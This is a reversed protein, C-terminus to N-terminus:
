VFLIYARDLVNSDLDVFGLKHCFCSLTPVLKKVDHLVHLAHKGSDTECPWNRIFGAFIQWSAQRKPIHSCHGLRSKSPKRQPARVQVTITKPQMVIRTEPVTTQSYVIKTDPVAHKEPVIFRCGMRAHALASQLSTSPFLCYIMQLAPNVSRDIVRGDPTRYTGHPIGPPPPASEALM